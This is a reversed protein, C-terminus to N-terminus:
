VSHSACALALHENDLEFAAAAGSGVLPLAQLSKVASRPAVATAVDGHSRIIAGTGEVVAAIVQHRSEVVWGRTVEVVLPANM